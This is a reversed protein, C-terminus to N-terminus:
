HPVKSEFWTQKYADSPAGKRTRPVISTDHKRNVTSTSALGGYEGYHEDKRATLIKGVESNLSRTAKQRNRFRTGQWDAVDPKGLPHIRVVM